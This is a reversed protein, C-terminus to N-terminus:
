NQHDAFMSELYWTMISIIFGLLFALFRWIIGTKSAFEETIIESIALYIFTGGSAAMVSGKLKDNTQGLFTGALLGIPTMLSFSVLSVFIKCKTVQYKLFNFGIAMSEGWKHFLIALLFGVFSANKMVGLAIGEITAHVGMAILLLYPGINEPRMHAQRGFEQKISDEAFPASLGSPQSSVKNELKKALGNNQDRIEKDKSFSREGSCDLGAILDLNKYNCDQKPELEVFTSQHQHDQYNSDEHPYGNTHHHHNPLLVRDLFLLLIFSCLVIFCVWPFSEEKSNDENKDSDFLKTAEPIIHIFATSLFIGGALTNGLSLLLKKQKCRNILLPSCSFGLTFLFLGFAVGMKYIMEGSGIKKSEITRSDLSSKQQLLDNRLEGKPRGKVFQPIVAMVYILVACSLWIKSFRLRGM